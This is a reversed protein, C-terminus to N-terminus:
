GEEGAPGQGRRGSWGEGLGAGCYLSSCDPERIGVGLRDAGWQWFEWGGEGGRRGRQLVLALLRAVQDKIHIELRLLVGNRTPLCSQHRGCGAQASAQPGGLKVTAWGPGLPNALM